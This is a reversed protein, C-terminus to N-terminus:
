RDLGMSVTPFQWFGACCSAPIFSHGQRRNGPPLRPAETRQTTRRCVRACLHRTFRSGACLDLGRRAAGHTRALFARLWHRLSARLVPLKRHPRRARFLGQECAPHHGSRELPNGLSNQARTRPQRTVERRERASDHEPIAHDRPVTADNRYAAGRGAAHQAPVQGSRTGCTTSGRAVLRGM